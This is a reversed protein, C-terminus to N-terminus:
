APNDQAPDSVYQDRAAQIFPGWTLATAPNMPDALMAMDGRKGFRGVASSSIPWRGPRNLGRCFEAFCCEGGGPQTCARSSGGTCGLSQIVLMARPTSEEGAKRLRRM